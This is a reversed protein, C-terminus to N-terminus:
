QKRSSNYYVPEWVSEGRTSVYWVGGEADEMRRWGEALPRGGRGDLFLCAGGVVAFQEGDGGEVERLVEAEHAEREARARAGAGRLEDVMSGGGVGLASARSLADSALAERQRLETLAKAADGLHKNAIAWRYANRNGPHERLAALMAEQQPARAHAALLPNATVPHTFPAGPAGACERATVAAEAAAVERAVAATPAGVSLLERLWDPLNAAWGGGKGGAGGGGSEAVLARWWAAVLLALILLSLVVLLVGLAWSEQSGAGGGERTVHMLAMNILATAASLTLLATSAHTRWALRSRYPRACATAVALALACTAATVQVGFFTATSTALTASASCAVLGAVLVYNATRLWAHEPVMDADSAAAAHFRARAGGRAGCRAACCGVRGSVLQAAFVAVPFGVVFLAQMAWGAAYVRAHAGERCVQFENSVLTSVLVPADLVAPTVNAAAAFAADRVAARLTALPPAGRPLAGGDSDMVAYLRLATARVPTCAIADGVVNTIAGYGLCLALVALSAARPAPASPPARAADCFVVPIGALVVLACVVGVAAWFGGFPDGSLCAPNVSVGRFQLSTVVSFLPALPAPALPRAVAFMGATSQATLWVYLLLSAVSLASDKIGACRAVKRAWQAAALLALGLAFLGGAFMGVSAALSAAAGAPCRACLLADSFFGPACAACQLGRYGAGCGVENNPAPPLAVYGPCRATAGPGPCAVLASPPSTTSPAWWGARPLLVFGGPCVAGPPCPTCAEGAGWACLQAAGGSANPPPFLGCAEPPAYAPDRCQTVAHVGM